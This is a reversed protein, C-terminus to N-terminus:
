QTLPRCYAKWDDRSRAAMGMSASTAGDVIAGLANVASSGPDVAIDIQVIRRDALHGCVAPVLEPRGTLGATRLLQVLRLGQAFTADPSLPAVLKARLTELHPRSGLRVLAAEGADRLPADSSGGDRYFRELLPFDEESGTMGLVYLALQATATSLVRRLVRLAAGRAAGATQHASEQHELFWTFGLFQIDLGSAPMSAFIISMARREDAALMAYAADSGIERDTLLSPTISFADFDLARLADGHQRAISTDKTRQPTRLILAVEDQRSQPIVLRASVDRPANTLARELSFTGGASIESARLHFYSGALQLPVDQEIGALGRVTLERVPRGPSGVAAFEISLSRLTGRYETRGKTVTSAIPGITDLPARAVAKRLSEAILVVERGGVSVRTTRSNGDFPGRVPFLQGAQILKPFRFDSEPTVGSQVPLLTRARERGTADVLVLPVRQQSDSDPAQWHFPGVARARQGGLTLVFGAPGDLTGSFNEGPAVDDPLHATVAGEPVAFTVLTLGSGTTVQAELQAHAVRPIVLDGVLVAAAVLARVHGSSM